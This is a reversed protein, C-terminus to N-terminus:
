RKPTSHLLEDLSEFHELEEIYAELEGHFRAITGTPYDEKLKKFIPLVRKWGELDNPPSDPLGCDFHPAHGKYLDNIKNRQEVLQKLLADVEIRLIKVVNGAARALAKGDNDAPREGLPGVGLEYARNVFANRKGLNAKAM